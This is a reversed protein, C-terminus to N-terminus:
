DAPEIMYAQLAGTEDSNFFARRGDPSLFPHCHTDKRNTTRTNVLYRWRAAADRGPEGLECAYVEVRGEDSWCDTVLRRGEIDTAFHYFRPAKFSRSLDNRIGGLALGTHGEDEVPLSEILRCDAGQLGARETPNTSTVAWESRGRWCQHGQCFEDGDRGWPMARLHSGDDRIVHIDAGRPDDGAKMRPGGMPNRREGHNEQILVDHSREPDLSRSYQPHPNLIFPTEHIAEARARDLDFRVIAWRGETRGTDGVYAGTVLREGDSSITALVYVCSLRHDMGPLPRDIAMVTERGAGDPRVRKVTVRGADPESEDVVYYVWRGDPSYAPCKANLEDTLPALECGSEIDCMMLRHGPDNRRAGHARGSRELIFRRSDPSFIQAEMYVHSCPVDPDTTLQVVRLGEPCREDVLDPREIAKNM